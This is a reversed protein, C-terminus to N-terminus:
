EHNKYMGPDHKLQGDTMFNLKLSQKEPIINGWNSITSRHVKLNKAVATASGFYRIVHDKLM